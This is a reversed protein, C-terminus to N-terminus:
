QRDLFQSKVFYVLGWIDEPSLGSWEGSEKDQVGLSRPMPTLMGPIGVAIRVYLQEPEAGAKLEEGALNRPRTSLNAALPGDGIGREGHCSVCIRKFHVAGRQVLAETIPPRPPVVVREGAAPRDAWLGDLVVVLSDVQEDSLQDFAPMGSSPFGNRIARRLDADSAIGNISSVFRYSGAVLDRPPAGFTPSAAGAGDGRGSIGHCRACQSVYLATGMIKGDSSSVTATTGAVSVGGLMNASTLFVVAVAGMGYLMWSKDSRLSFEWKRQFRFRETRMSQYPRVFYNIPYAWVHVLKTFPFYAFFTLAFLVHLQTMDSASAMLEPQPSFTWLSAAWSSATYAVGFIRHAIVQYLSLAVISILFVHVVFDEVQSSARVEPVMIRRFLAVISGVLVMLGGVLGAWYFFGIAGESGLVGGFLGFLHGLLVLVLGWHLLLSAVGLSQRNFMSSARTSWSFPRFRMRIIPVAFFLVICLYPYVGWLFKNM